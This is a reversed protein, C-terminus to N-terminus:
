AMSFFQGIMCPSATAIPRTSAAPTDSRSPSAGAHSATPSASSKFFPPSGVWDGMAIPTKSSANSFSLFTSPSAM